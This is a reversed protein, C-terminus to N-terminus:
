QYKAPIEAVKQYQGAMIALDTATTHITTQKLLEQVIKYPEKALQTCAITTQDHYPPITHLVIPLSSVDITVTGWTIPPEFTALWPYRLIIDEGGLDTVLFCMVKKTSKTQVELDIYNTLLGGKNLSGYINWIKRAQPLKRTGLKM